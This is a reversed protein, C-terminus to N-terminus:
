LQPLKSFVQLTVEDSNIKERAAKAQAKAVEKQNSM